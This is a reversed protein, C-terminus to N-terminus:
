VEFKDKSEDERDGVLLLLYSDVVSGSAQRSAPNRKFVSVGVKEVTNLAYRTQVEPTKSGILRQENVMVRIYDM